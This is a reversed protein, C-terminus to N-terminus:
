TPNKPTIDDTSPSRSTRPKVLGISHGLNETAHKIRRLAEIAKNKLNPRRWTV